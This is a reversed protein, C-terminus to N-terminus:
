FLGKEWERGAILGKLSFQRKFDVPTNVPSKNQPKLSTKFHASLLHFINSAKKVSDHLSRVKQAQKHLPPKDQATREKGQRNEM